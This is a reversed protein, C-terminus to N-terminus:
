PEYNWSPEIIKLYDSIKKISLNNMIVLYKKNNVTIPNGFTIEAIEQENSYLTATYIWGVAPSPSKYNSIIYKNIHGMFEAIKQPNTVTLPKNRGTGDVFLIKTITSENIPIVTNLRRISIVHGIIYYIFIIGVIIAVIKIEKV